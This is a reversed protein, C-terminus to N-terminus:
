TGRPRSRTRWVDEIAAAPIAGARLIRLGDRVDVVTSAPEGPLEGGDVYFDLREAFYDWVESLRRPPPAGAPNASPATLPVGVARVIATAIPCSSIRVGISGTGATLAPHLGDEADLVLTLPGPWFREALRSAADSLPRTLGALMELDASILAIPKGAERGKIALLRDLAAACNVAAALGYLTETPIAGIDGRRLREAAGAPSTAPVVAM